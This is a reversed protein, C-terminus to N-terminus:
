YPILVIGQLLPVLSYHWGISITITKTTIIFIKDHLYSSPVMESLFKERPFRFVKCMGINLLVEEIWPHTAVAPKIKVSAFILMKYM